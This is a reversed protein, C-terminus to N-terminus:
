IRRSTSNLRNWAARATGSGSGTSGFTFPPVSGTSVSLFMAVTGLQPCNWGNEIRVSPNREKFTTYASDPASTVRPPDIQFPYGVSVYIPTGFGKMEMNSPVALEKWSADNFDNKFFDLPRLPPESVWNFRWLGNLSLQYPNFVVDDVAQICNSTMGAFPIFNARAPERNIENVSVNEWDPREVASVFQVMSCCVFLRIWFRKM